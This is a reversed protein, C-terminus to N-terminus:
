KEEEHWAAPEEKKDEAEDEVKGLEVEEGEEKPAEDKDGEEGKVIENGDEDVETIIPPPMKCLFISTVMFCCASAISVAGGWGLSCNHETQPENWCTDSNFILLTLWQCIWCIVVVLGLTKNYCRGHPRKTNKCLLVLAILGLCAAITGVIAAVTRLNSPDAMAEGISEFTDSVSSDLCYVGATRSVGEGGAEDPDYYEVFRCSALTVISLLWAM